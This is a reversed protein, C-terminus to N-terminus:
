GSSNEDVVTAHDLLQNIQLKAKTTCHEQLVQQQLFHHKAVGAMAIGAIGPQSVVSWQLATDIEAPNQM